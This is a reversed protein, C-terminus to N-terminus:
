VSGETDYETGLLADCEEAADLDVDADCLGDTVNEVEVLDDALDDALVELKPDELNDDVADEDPVTEEEARVLRFEVGLADLSGNAGDALLSPSELVWFIPSPTPIGKPMKPAAARRKPHQKKSRRLFFLRTSPETGGEDGPKM